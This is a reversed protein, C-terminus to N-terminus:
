VQPKQKPNRLGYPLPYPKIDPKGGKEKVTYLLQDTSISYMYMLTKLFVYSNTHTHLYTFRLTCSYFHSHIALLFVRLDNTLIEGLFEAETSVLGIDTQVTYKCHYMKCPTWRCQVRGPLLAVRLVRWVSGVRCSGRGLWNHAFYSGDFTRLEVYKKPFVNKKELIKKPSGGEIKKSTHRFNLEISLHLL